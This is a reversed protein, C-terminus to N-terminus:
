SPLTQHCTLLIM